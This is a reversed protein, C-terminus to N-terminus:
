TSIEWANAEITIIDGSQMKVEFKSNSLETAENISASPGWPMSRSLSFATLGSFTLNRQGSALQLILTCQGDAWNVQLSTLVADHLDKLIRM